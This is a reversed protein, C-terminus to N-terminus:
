GMGGSVTAFVVTETTDLGAVSCVAKGPDITLVKSSM